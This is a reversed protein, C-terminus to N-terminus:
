ATRADTRFEGGRRVRVGGAAQRVLLRERSAARRGSRDVPPGVGSQGPHGARDRHGVDAPAAGALRRHVDRAPALVDRLPHEGHLGPMRLVGPGGAGPGRGHVAPGLKRARHRGFRRLVGPRAHPLPARRRHPTELGPPGGGPRGGRGDLLLRGGEQVHGLAGPAQDPVYLLPRPEPGEGSSSSVM